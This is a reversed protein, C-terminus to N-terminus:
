PLSRLAVAAAATGPCAIRRFAARRSRYRVSPLARPPSLARPADSRWASGHHTATALMNHQSAACQLWGPVRWWVLGHPPVARWDLLCGQAHNPASPPATRATGSQPPAHSPIAQPRDHVVLQGVRVTGDGAAVMPRRREPEVPTHPQPVRLPPPASCLDCAPWAANWRTRRFAESPASSTCASSGRPVADTCDWSNM